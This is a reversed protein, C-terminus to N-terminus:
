QGLPPGFQYGSHKIIDVCREAVISRTEDTYYEWYPIDRPRTNGKLHPLPVPPLDLTKCVAQFDAEISEYRIFFDALPQGDDDFWFRRNRGSRNALGTFWRVYRPDDHDPRDPLSRAIHRRWVNWPLGANLRIRKKTMRHRKWHYRSVVEDWPNRVITIKSYTDWIEQPIRKRIQHPRMHTRFGTNNKQYCPRGELDFPSTVIDEPGCHQGLAQLVSSGGVKFPKLFIFKYKHSVIM